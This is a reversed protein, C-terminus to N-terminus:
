RNRKMNAPDTAIMIELQARNDKAIRAKEFQYYQEVCTFYDRDLLLPSDHFNSLVSLRGFFAVTSDDERQALSSTDFPVDSLNQTTYTSGRIVLKDLNLSAM